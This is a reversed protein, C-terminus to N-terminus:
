GMSAHGSAVQQKQGQLVALAVDTQALRGRQLAVVPHADVVGLRCQLVAPAKQLGAVSPIPLRQQVCTLHAACRSCGQAHAAISVDVVGLAVADLQLPSPHESM